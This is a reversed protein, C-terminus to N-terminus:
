RPAPVTVTRSRCSRRDVEPCSQFSRVDRSFCIRVEQLVGGSCAVSIMDTRLGPNAAVFARELDMIAFTQDQGASKLGPPVAVKERAARVAAFYDTPSLGSCTGHKRWEYRALGEDPYVGRASELAIRSPSRNAPSCETPFGRDFQPWLGHVVFGLGSGPECQDRGKRDGEITCFGPSWSLSLVYFDFDGPAGGRREGSQASASTAVLVSFAAGLLAACAARVMM